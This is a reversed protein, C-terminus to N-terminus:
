EFVRLLPILVLYLCVGNSDFITYFSSASSSRNSIYNILEECIARYVRNIGSKRREMWRDILRWQWLAAFNFYLPCPSSSSSSTAKSSSWWWCSGWCLWWVVFVTVTRTAPPNAARHIISLKTPLSHSPCFIFQPCHSLSLLCPLACVGVGRRETRSQLRYRAILHKSRDNSLNYLCLTTRGRISGAREGGGDEWLRKRTGM